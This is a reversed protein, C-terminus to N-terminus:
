AKESFLIREDAKVYTPLSRVYANGHVMSPLSFLKQKKAYEAAIESGKVDTINQSISFTENKEKHHQAEIDLSFLNGKPSIFFFLFLSNYSRHRTIQM